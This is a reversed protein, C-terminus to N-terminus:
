LTGPIPDDLTNTQEAGLALWQRIFSVAIQYEQQYYGVSQIIVQQEFTELTGTFFGTQVIVAGQIEVVVLEAKRSGLPKITLTRKGIIYVGVQAMILDVDPPDENLRGQYTHM